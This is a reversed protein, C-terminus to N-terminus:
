VLEVELTVSASAVVNTGGSDTAIEFTATTSKTGSTNVLTTWERDTTLALWSGTTGTTFTGSTLTARVYHTSAGTTPTIWQYTDTLGAGFSYVNVLGSSGAVEFTLEALSGFGAPESDLYNASFLTYASGGASMGAMIATVGTMDREGYRGM